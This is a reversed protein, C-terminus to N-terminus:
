PLVSFGPPRTYTAFELLGGYPRAVHSPIGRPTTIDFTRGANGPGVGSFDPGRRGGNWRLIQSHLPDDVAQGVMREVAKGYNMPAVKASAQAARYEAPSLVTKALSPNAALRDAQQTTMNQLVKGADPTFSQNLIPLSQDPAKAAALVADDVKNAANAIKSM